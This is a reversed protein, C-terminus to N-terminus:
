NLQITDNQGTLDIIKHGERIM